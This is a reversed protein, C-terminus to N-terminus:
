DGNKHTRRGASSVDITKIGLRRAAKCAAELSAFPGDTRGLNPKPMRGSWSDNGNVAVYFTDAKAQEAQVPVFASGISLPMLAILFIHGMRM